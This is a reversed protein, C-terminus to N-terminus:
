EPYRSVDKGYNIKQKLRYGELVWIKSHADDRAIDRGISENFIKEDACASQGVVQFGNRLTLCCVIMLTDPFQYFQEDMVQEKIWDLTIRAM